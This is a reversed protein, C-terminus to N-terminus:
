DIHIFLLYVKNLVFNRSQSYNQEGGIYFTMFLFFGSAISVTYIITIFKVKLLNFYQIIQSDM